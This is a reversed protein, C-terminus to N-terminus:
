SVRELSFSFVSGVGLTSQATLEAGHAAVIRRSLYLGLGLGDVGRQMEASGRRFKAFIRILEGPDIGFGQDIVEIWIRKGACTARLEIPTGPPAYKAANGLLNRLVQQIRVPDAWVMAEAEISSIVPHEGPLTKAFQVAEEILVTVPVPRRKVVFDDREAKAVTQIDRVLVELLDAVERIARLAQAQQEAELRGSLLLDSYGRLAAIASGLEHAIMATFDAKLVMLRELRKLQEQARALISPNQMTRRHLRIFGGTGALIVFAGGVLEAPTATDVGGLLTSFDSDVAVQIVNLFFAIWVLLLVAACGAAYGIHSRSRGQSFVRRALISAMGPFRFRMRARIRGYLERITNGMEARVKKRGALFEQM